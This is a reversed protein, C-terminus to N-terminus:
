PCEPFQAGKHVIAPDSRSINAPLGSGDDPKESRGCFMIRIAAGNILLCFPMERETKAIFIISAAIHM